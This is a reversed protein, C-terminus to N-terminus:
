PRPRALQEGREAVELEVLVQDAAGRDVRVARREGVLHELGAAAGVRHQEGGDAARLPVGGVRALRPGLLAQEAQALPEAQERVQARHPRARRQEVGARELALADLAGVQEDHALEGAADVEAVAAEVAVRAWSM